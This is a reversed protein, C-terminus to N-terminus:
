IHILSLDDPLYGGLPPRDKSWEARKLDSRFFRTDLLIVQVRKGEPGTISSEYVGPRARVADSSGWFSEFLTEAWRRMPFNGGADNLGFDHDDWTAMMPFRARFDRFEPHSAQVAYSHRLSELGADADWGADGYVNDGIMLFMHPNQAAIQAWMHQPANQHNCSGFAIRTLTTNASLAPNPGAVPMQVQRRLASYYPELLQDPTVSVPVPTEAMVPAAAAFLTAAFLSLRM